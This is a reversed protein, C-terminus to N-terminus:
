TWLSVLPCCFRCDHWSKTSRLCLCSGPVWSDLTRFPIIWLTCKVRRFSPIASHGSRICGSARSIRGSGLLWEEAGWLTDQPCARWSLSCSCNRPSLDCVCSRFCCTWSWTLLWLGHTKPVARTNRYPDYADQTWTPSQFSDRHRKPWHCYCYSSRHAYCTRCEVCTRTSRPSYSVNSRCPRISATPTPSWM